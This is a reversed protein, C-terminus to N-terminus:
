RAAADTSKRFQITIYAETEVRAGEIYTPAYRWERIARTVVPLLEVPGSIPKLNVVNGDKDIIARVRVTDGSKQRLHSAQPETHSVLEGLLMEKERNRHLPWYWNRKDPIFISRQIHISSSPSELVRDGPLNMISVNKPVTIKIPQGAIVGGPEGGGYAADGSLGRVTSAPIASNTFTSVSAALPV